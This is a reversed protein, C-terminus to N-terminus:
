GPRKTSPGEGAFKQLGGPSFYGDNFYHSNAFSGVPMFLPIPHVRQHRIARLQGYNGTTARLQRSCCFSPIAHATLYTISRHKVHSSGWGHKVGLLPCLQTATVFQTGVTAAGCSAIRFLRRSVVFFPNPSKM